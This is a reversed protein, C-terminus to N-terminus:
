ELVWARADVSSWGGRDIGCSAHVLRAGLSSEMASKWETCSKTHADFVKTTFDVSSERYQQSIQRLYLTLDGAKITRSSYYTTEQKPTFMRTPLDKVDILADCGNTVAYGTVPSLSSRDSDLVLKNTFTGCETLLLDKGWKKSLAAMWANRVDIYKNYAAVNAGNVSAPVVAGNLLESITVANQELTLLVRSESTAFYYKAGHSALKRADSKGCDLYYVQSVKGVREKLTQKWAECAAPYADLAAKRANDEEKLTEYKVFDTNVAGNLTYVYRNKYKLLATAIEFNDTPSFAALTYGRADEESYNLQHLALHFLAGARNTEDMLDWLDGDYSYSGDPNRAALVVTFAGKVEPFEGAIKSPAQTGEPLRKWNQLLEVLKEPLQGFKAPQVEAAFKALREAFAESEGPKRGSYDEGLELLRVSSVAGESNRSVNVKIGPPLDSEAFIPNAFAFVCVSLVLKLM